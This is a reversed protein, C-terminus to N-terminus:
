TFPIIGHIVDEVIFSKLEDYIEGKTMGEEYIEDINYTIFQFTTAKRNRIDGIFKSKCVSILYIEQGDENTIM